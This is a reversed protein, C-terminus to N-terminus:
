PYWSSGPERPNSVGCPDRCSHYRPGGHELTGTHQGHSIPARDKQGRSRDRDVSGITYANFGTRSGVKGSRTRGYGLLITVCADSHGPQIWVPAEVTRGNHILEVLDTLTEGHEGGASGVVLEIGLEKATAPSMLVANDWTLKTISKPLEQLWANNAFRGDYVTSDARYVFELAPREPVVAANKPAVQSLADYRFSVSKEPLESGAILGDHLANRWAREFDDGKMSGWRARWYDRVIEYGPREPRDSFAALVEYISKGRYLPSILPQVISVTGDFARADGWAELYHAEPVHWHCYESTEDNYPSLHIRLPVRELHRLFESDAPANYVPNGGLIVLVGVRGDDMDTLLEELSESQLVPDATAPDTYRVTRGVNGLLANMAHCLVHTEVSQHEGPIVISSGRHELLDVALARLWAEQPGATPVVAEKLPVNLARALELAFAEVESPRVALRHDAKAGTLTLTSEVSYLRSMRNGEGLRRTKVFDHIYRVCGPGMSLFDSDLAVVVDAQDFSYVTQVSEGFARRAGALSNDRALPEFQHWRSEPFQVQIHRFQDALTPSTVTETLFRVGAGRSPLQEVVVSRIANLFDSYPRIAGRYTLTQSRDPDYLDLISAQAFLDTAGLSSPHDPNGEM